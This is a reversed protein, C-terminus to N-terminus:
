YIRFLWFASRHKMLGVGGVTHRTLPVSHSGNSYEAKLDGCISCVTPKSMWLPTSFLTSPRAVFGGCVSVKILNAVIQISSYIINWLFALLM